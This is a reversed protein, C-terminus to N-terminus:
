RRNEPPISDSAKPSPTTTAARFPSNRTTRTIYWYLLIGAPIAALTLWPRPSERLFHRNRLMLSKAVYHIAAKARAKFTCGLVMDIKRIFAFGQPNRRYQHIMNHSSGDPQYEVICVIENLILLPYDQDTLLYKYGLSVYKEGPFVPYPPYQRMVQTRYILKKDGTGGRAYFECLRIQQRDRPLESGIVGGHETADLAVIGSYHDSGQQRWFSVIKEVADDPMWDDSDICTNLETDILEYAANHATHMGGNEKHHYRIPIRGEAIWGAVLERTNDTSGDDIVLWCFDRSTQRLLAAYLRPLLHARNYAPTFITLLPSM